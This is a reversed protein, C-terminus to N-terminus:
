IGQVTKRKRTQIERDGRSSRRESTKIKQSERFM